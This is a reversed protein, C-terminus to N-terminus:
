TLGFRCKKFTGNQHSLVDDLAKPGQGVFLAFVGDGQCRVGNGTTELANAGLCANLVAKMVQM